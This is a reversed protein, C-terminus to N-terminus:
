SDITTKVDKSQKFTSRYSDVCYLEEKLVTGKLDFM